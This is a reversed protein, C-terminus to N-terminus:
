IAEWETVERSELHLNTWHIIVGYKDDVAKPNHREQWDHITRKAYRLDETADELNDYIKSFNFADSGFAIPTINENCTDKGDINHHIKKTGVIKYERM